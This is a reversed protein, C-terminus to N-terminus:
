ALVAMKLECHQKLTRREHLYMSLAAHVAHLPRSGRRGDIPGTKDIIVLHAAANTRESRLRRLAGGPIRAEREFRTTVTSPRRKSPRYAM